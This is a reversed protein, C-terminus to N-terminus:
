TCRFLWICNKRCPWVLNLQNAEQADPTKKINQWGRMQLYLPLFQGVEWYWPTWCLLVKSLKYLNVEYLAWQTYIEVTKWTLDLTKTRGETWFNSEFNFHFLKLLKLPKLHEMLFHVNLFFTSGSDAASFTSPSACSHVPGCLCVTPKSHLQLRLTESHNRHAWVWKSLQLSSTQSELKDTM